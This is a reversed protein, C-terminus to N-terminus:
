ILTPLGKTISPPEASSRARFGGLTLSSRHPNPERAPCRAGRSVIKQRATSLMKALQLQVTRPLSASFNANRGEACQTHPAEVASVMHQRPLDFDRRWDRSRYHVRPNKFSISNRRLVARASKGFRSFAATNM